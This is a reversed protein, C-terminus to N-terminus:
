MLDKSEELSNMISEAQEPTFFGSVAMTPLIVDTYFKMQSGEDKELWVDFMKKVKEYTIGHEWPSIAAQAVTLMVSLPPIDGGTIVNMINKRYKNELVTIMSTNLKMKHETGAVPWFHFAKRSKKAEEFSTVKEENEQNIETDLGELREM